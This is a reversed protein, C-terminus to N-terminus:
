LENALHTYIQTSALSQHGLFRQIMEIDMGQLLLHTAISHRLTHLTPKKIQLSSRGSRQTLKELRASLAQGTCRGGYQSVFFAQTSGDGAALLKPRGNELYESLYNMIGQTIPVYRQSHGKGKRVFLLRRHVFVDSVNLAAGESKRVGCGYYVGLMARDRRSTARQLSLADPHVFHGSQYTADYLANIEDLTLVSRPTNNQKLYSLKEARIGERVAQSLYDFFKNVTSVAVNVSAAALGAGSLKNKRKRLYWVYRKVKEKTVQDIDTVHCRELYLLFERINRRRTIITAQSYGLTSLWDIFGKELNKFEASDISRPDM